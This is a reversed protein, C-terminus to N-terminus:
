ADQRKLRAAALGLIVVTWLCLVAFGTWPGLHSGTPSSWIAAGANSPLYPAIDNSWSSPLLDLIPPIVFLVAVLASIGAATNRLLAGLALGLVGIVTLYLGAGIVMRLAHPSSISVNLHKSALMSQGLFFAVFVAVLSALGVVSAFVGVKAWLVPLRKPVVTLSARIMGTAYEGTILMVGLVGIALQAINVGDLSTTVANFNLREAARGQDWHAARVASILTGLGITLAMAVFLTIYTSRLSRFKTWESRFVRAQTVKLGPMSSQHQRSLITTSM